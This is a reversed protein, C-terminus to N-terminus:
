WDSGLVEGGDRTTAAWWTDGRVAQSVFRVSGDGLAVNIGNSHPSEALKSCVNSSGGGPTNDCYQLTPRVLFKSAPGQIDYGFKPSWEWWTNGGWDLNWPSGSPMAYKETFFITNSTGDQIGSPYRAPGKSSWDPNYWSYMGVEFVQHNYAYSTTAWGGAGGLGNAQTPDGPCNYIKVPSNIIAGSWSYYGGRPLRWGDAAPGVLSAKYLPEQEVYPLIHFFASGFGVANSNSPDFLPYDGVGPPLQGQNTDACNVTGLSINKLNNGCQIRQAAERVKQVAPVLLGILIAIIAIVVLLEILTFARLRRAVFHLPM